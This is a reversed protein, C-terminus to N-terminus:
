SKTIVKEGLMLVNIRGDTLSGVKKLIRQKVLRNIIVRYSSFSINYEEYAKNYIEKIDTENEKEILSYIFITAELTKKGMRYKDELFYLVDM